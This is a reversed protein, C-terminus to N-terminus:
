KASPRGSKKPSRHVSAASISPTGSTGPSFPKFTSGRAKELDELSVPHLEEDRDAILVQRTEPDYGAVVIVHGGFHYGDPLDFYSLFGMDVHIM